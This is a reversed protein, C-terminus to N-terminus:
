SIVGENLLQEYKDYTDLLKQIIEHDAQNEHVKLNDIQEEQDPLAYIPCYKIKAM